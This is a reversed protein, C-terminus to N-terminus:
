QGLALAKLESTGTRVVQEGPKLGSLVLVSESGEGAGLRVTRVTVGQGSRVFVVDAGNLSTVAGAPVVVAGAPAPAMLVLTASGGSIVGPGAPVRAKLLVSRTDPAVTAGVSTVTGSRDGLRVAMGPRVRDILREPLQADVEYEGAADIVFPAATGDLRDGTKATASSVRGSIPATLRYGGGTGSAGAMALIRRKESVDAEAERLMAQAEEARASAIVGDRALQGLRRASSRAVGLRAEARTLDSHLSLVESSRVQALVQGKRVADGEVVFSREIVGPFLATVAVRANAPPAVTGPLMALPAETAAQASAWAIGLARIQDAGLALAAM